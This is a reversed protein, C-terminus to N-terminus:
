GTWSWLRVGTEPEQRMLDRACELLSDAVSLAGGEACELALHVLRAPWYRAVRPLAQAGALAVYAGVLSAQDPEASRGSTVELASAQALAASVDWAPDGWGSLEWDILRLSVPALDLDVLCNDWKVDGHVLCVPEWDARATRLGAAIVPDRSVELALDKAHVLEIDAPSSDPLDLIGASAPFPVPVGATAQHVSALAAGLSASAAPHPLRSEDQLVAGVTSWAAAELVLVQRREDILLVRPLVAALGPRWTALRYAFAEAALSRSRGQARGSPTKVVVSGESADVRHVCHSRSLDSM